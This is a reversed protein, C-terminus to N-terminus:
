LRHWDKFILGLIGACGSGLTGATERVAGLLRDITSARASFLRERLDSALHKHSLLLEVMRSSSSEITLRLNKRSGEVGRGAGTQSGRGIGAQGRLIRLGATEECQGMLRAAHKPHCGTLAVFANLMRSKDRM